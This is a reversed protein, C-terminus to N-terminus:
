RAKGNKADLNRYIYEPLYWRIWGSGELRTRIMIATLLFTLGILLVETNAIHFFNANVNYSEENFAVTLWGLGLDTRSLPWLFAYGAPYVLADEFLHAGFGVVSFFLADFFRTGAAYFIFAFIVGFIVMAAINHFMGHYVPSGEFFITIRFRRLITAIFDLDPIYTMLIIIWSSDRGTFRFFLMGVLVAIASSYILHEILM